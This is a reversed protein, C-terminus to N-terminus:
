DKLAARLTKLVLIFDRSNYVEGMLAVQSLMEVERASVGHARHLKTDSRFAKWARGSRLGRTRADRSMDGISVSDLCESAKLRRDFPESESFHRLGPSTRRSSLAEPKTPRQPKNSINGATHSRADHRRRSM